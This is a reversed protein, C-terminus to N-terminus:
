DALLLRNNWLYGLGSYLTLAVTIAIVWIGGYIWIFTWLTAQWKWESFAMLTLFFFITTMQWITKHKGLKEAPLTVGQNGALLRLGTILFERAMIILVVGVPLAAHVTLLIFASTNLVKDALPDILKGFSTVIGWRRALKGDFFDTLVALTFLILAATMNWRFPCEVAIIFLTTLFIRAITLRNPLLMEQLWNGIELLMSKQFKAFSRM